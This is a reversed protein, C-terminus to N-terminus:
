SLRLRPWAIGSLATKAERARAALEDKTAIMWKRDESIERHTRALGRGRVKKAEAVGSRLLLAGAATVIVGVLLAAAWLPMVHGLAMVATALFLYLGAHLLTGGAAVPKVAKTMGRAQERVDDKLAALGRNVRATAGDLAARGEAGLERAHGLEHKLEAVLRRAEGEILLRGHHGLEKVLDATSREELSEEDTLRVDDTHM